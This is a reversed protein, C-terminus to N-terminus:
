YYRTSCLENLSCIFRISSVQFMGQKQESTFFIQKVQKATNAKKNLRFTLNLFTLTLQM